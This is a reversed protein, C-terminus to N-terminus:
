VDWLVLSSVIVNMAVTLHLELRERRRIWGNKRNNLPQRNKRNNLSARDTPVSNSDASPRIKRKKKILM